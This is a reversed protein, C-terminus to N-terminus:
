NWDELEAKKTRKKNDLIKQFQNKFFQQLELNDNTVEFCYREKNDVDFSYLDIKMNIIREQGENEKVGYSIGYPILFDTVHYSIRQKFERLEKGKLTKPYDYLLKRPGEKMPNPRDTMQKIWSECIASAAVTGSETSILTIKKEAKILKEFEYFETKGLLTANTIGLFCVEDADAFRDKLTKDESVCRKKIQVCDKCLLEIQGKDKCLLELRRSMEGLIVKEERISRVDQKIDRIADYREIIALITPICVFFLLAPIIWGPVKFTPVMFGVFMGGVSVIAILAVIILTSLLYYNKERFLNKITSILKM